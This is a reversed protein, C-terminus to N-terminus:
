LLEILNFDIVQGLKFPQILATWYGDPTVMCGASANWNRLGSWGRHLNIGFNGFQKRDRNLKRDKNADRYIFINKDQQFYPMASWLNKWSSGTVFRHSFLVQQECAIATGGAIMGTFLYYDGATTSCPAVMDVVGQNVRCVVDDFSDTLNEDLRIYILGTTPYVWNRRTFEKKLLEQTASLTKSGAVGDVTLSYGYKNLMTQLNKM